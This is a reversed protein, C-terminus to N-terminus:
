SVEVVSDQTGYANEEYRDANPGNEWTEGDLLYKYRYTGPALPVTVSWTGDGQHALTTSEPSWDNFEGCLAVRDAKVDAPLSFVVDVTPADGAEGSDGAAAPGVGAANEEAVQANAAAWSEGVPVEAPGTEGPAAQTPPAQTPPAEAPAAQASGTNAPATKGRVVDTEATEATEAAGPAGDAAEAVGAEAGAAGAGAVGSTGAAEAAGETVDTMDPGKAQDAADAADAEAEATAWASDGSAAAEDAEGPAATGSAKGDAEDNENRLLDQGRQAIEEDDLLRGALEDLAGLFRRYGTRAPAGDEGHRSTVRDGFEELQERVTEYQQKSMRRVNSLDM